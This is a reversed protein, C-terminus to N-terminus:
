LTKKRQGKGERKEIVKQICLWVADHGDGLEEVLELGVRFLGFM